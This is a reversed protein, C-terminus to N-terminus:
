AEGRAKKTANWHSASLYGGCLRCSFEYRRETQPEPKPCACWKAPKGLDPHERGPRPGEPETM